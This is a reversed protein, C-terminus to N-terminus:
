GLGELQTKIKRLIYQDEIELLLQELKEKDSIRSIAKKRVEFDSDKKVIEYL